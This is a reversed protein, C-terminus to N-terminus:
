LLHSDNLVKCVQSASCTRSNRSISTKEIEEFRSETDRKFMNTTVCNWTNDGYMAVLFSITLYCKTM